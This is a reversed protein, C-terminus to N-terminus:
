PWPVQEKHLRDLFATVWDREARRMHAVYHASVLYAEPTDQENKRRLVADIDDIEGDLDSLHRRLDDAVQDLPVNHAETLGLVFTPLEGVPRRLLDRVHRRLEERGSETLRYTTREPRGGARETGVVEALGALVLKDVTRYLTGPSVRVLLHQRRERILGYMEYPHM